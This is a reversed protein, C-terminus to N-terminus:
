LIHQKFLFTIAGLLGLSEFAQHGNLKENSINYGYHSYLVFVRLIAYFGFFIFSQPNEIFKVNVSQYNKLFDLTGNLPRIFM